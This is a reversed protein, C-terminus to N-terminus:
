ATSPSASRRRCWPAARAGGQSPSRSSARSCPPARPCTPRTPPSPRCGNARRGAGPYAGQFLAALGDAPMWLRWKGLASRQHFVLVLPEKVRPSPAYIWVETPWLLIGCRDAMRVAPPGNLLFYRAREEDLEGFTQYAEAVRADWSEQLENRATDPYPDRVAWFRRIFADRQYDKELRLFADREEETIIPDVEVLWRRFEPPLREELAEREARGLKGDDGAVPHGPAVAALALAAVLSLVLKRM